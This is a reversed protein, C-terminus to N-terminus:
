LRKLMEIRRPAYKKKKYFHLAEKNKPSVTLVIFRIDQKKAYAELGELLSTGIGKGRYGKKVAIDYVTARKEHLLSSKKARLFGVAKGREKAVLIIYEDTSITKSLHTFFDEQSKRRLITYEQIQKETDYKKQHLEIIEKWLSFIDESDEVRAQRVEM